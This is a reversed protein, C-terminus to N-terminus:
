NERPVKEAHDVVLTDVAARGSELKLGLQQQLATFLDPRDGKEGDPTWNLDIDYKGTLGTRDVVEAGASRSLVAALTPTTLAPAVLRGHLIAGHGGEVTAEKLKSGTKAVLLFYVRQEKSERHVAVQFREALLRQLMEPIRDKSAGAPLRAAVDFYLADLWDPGAIRDGNIRYATAILLKLTVNDYKLMAADSDMATFAATGIRPPSVKVSAVDFELAPAQAMAATTGMVAILLRATMAVYQIVVADATSQQCGTM